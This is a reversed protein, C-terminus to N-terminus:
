NFKQNFVDMVGNVIADALIADEKSLKGSGYPMYDNTNDNNSNYKSMFPPLNNTNPNQVNDNDGPVTPQEVVIPNSKPGPKGGDDLEGGIEVELKKSM